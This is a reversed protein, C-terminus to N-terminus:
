VHAALFELIEAWIQPTVVNAAHEAGPETHVVAPVGVDRLAQAMLEASEEPLREAEATLLYFPPDSPDVHAIPEAEAAVPCAAITEEPCGLYASRGGSEVHARIAPDDSTFTMLGSLSVVAAVRSGADLPGEGRTGLTGALVAGASGGVVGIRSGDIDFREVQEPERLWAVAAQADELQAPYIWTPALRYDISFAAYGADALELCMRRMSPQARDGGTFGGGHIVLIAPTGGPAAAEPLCADLALEAGDVERYVLGEIVDDPSTPAPRPGCAALLAVTAVVASATLFQRPRIPM